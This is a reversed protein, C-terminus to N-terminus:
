AAKPPKGPPSRLRDAKEYPQGTCQPRGDDEFEERSIGCLFCIERSFDFRHGGATRDFVMESEKSVAVREDQPLYTLWTQGEQSAIQGIPPTKFSATIAPFLPPSREQSATDYPCWGPM